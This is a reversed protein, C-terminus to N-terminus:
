PSSASASSSPRRIRQQDGRRHARGLRRRHRPDARVRPEGRAVSPSRLQRARARRRRPVRHAMGMRRGGRRDADRARRSEAARRAPRGHQRLLLRHRGLFGLPAAGDRRRVLDRGAARRGLLLGPRHAAARAPDLGHHGMARLHAVARHRGHRGVDRSDHHHARPAPRHPRRHPQLLHRRAPPRLLRRRVRQVLRDLSVMADTNPFFNRGIYQAFQSYVVFDYFELAGGLSALLILRWDSRSLTAAAQQMSSGGKPENDDASCYGPRSQRACDPRPLTWQRTLPHEIRSPAPTSNTPPEIAAAAPAHACWPDAGCKKMSRSMSIAPVTRDNSARLGCENTLTSTASSPPAATTQRQSSLLMADIRRAPMSSFVNVGPARTRRM